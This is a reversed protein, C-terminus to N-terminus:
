IVSGCIVIQDLWILDRSLECTRSVEKWKELVARKIPEYREIGASVCM